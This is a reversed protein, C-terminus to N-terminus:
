AAPEPLRVRDSYPGAMEAAIETMRERLQPPEVVEIDAGLRLLDYPAHEISEIPIEVRIWEDDDAARVNEKVVRAALPGLAAAFHVGRPSLRVVARERYLDALFRESSSKWFAALDFDGPREFEEELAELDTISSVRYTRIDGDVSAVAYWTGGKLVLGLPELVREVTGEWSRYRVSVPRQNWVAEAIASLHPPQDDDRFWGLPDLHFRERTREARSRQEPSLAALLKLQATALSEGLGLERATTPAGALFLSEAEDATLGTLRTRYGDLLRYGGAPGREAVVPIRAASLSELDRYVTRVSVELEEALQEATVRGRTQLLLLISILRSARV